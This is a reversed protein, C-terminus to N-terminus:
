GLYARLLSEGWVAMAVAAVAIYPGFPFTTKLSTKQGTVLPSIGLVVISVLAAIPLVLFGTPGFFLGLAMLLKIDGMGFGSKKRILSFLIALVIAPGATWVVGWLASSMAPVTPFLLPTAYLADIKFSQALSSVVFGVAGLAGVMSVIVNPLRRTAIDILSLMLLLSFLVAAFVGRTTGSFTVAAVAWLAGTGLEILLYRTPIKAQCYRCKGGLLAYSIVPITDQWQLTAGCSDCTGVTPEPTGPRPFRRVVINVWGGFFLGVAAFLVITAVQTADPVAYGKPRALRM